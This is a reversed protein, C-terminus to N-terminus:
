SKLLLGRVKYNNELYQLIDERREKRRESGLMPYTVVSGDPHTSFWNNLFVADPQKTTDAFVKFRIGNQKFQDVVSDFEQKALQMLKEPHIGSHHQFSNSVATAPNFGFCEPRILIVESPSQSNQEM